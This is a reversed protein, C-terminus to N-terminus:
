PIPIIPMSASDTETRSLTAPSSGGSEGSIYIARADGGDVVSIKHIHDQLSIDDAIVDGDISTIDKQVTLSKKVTVDADIFYQYDAEGTGFVAFGLGTVDDVVGFVTDGININCQSKRLYPPLFLINKINMDMKNAAKIQTKYGAADAEGCFSEVIFFGIM